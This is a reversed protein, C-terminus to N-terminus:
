IHILSLDLYTSWMANNSIGMEARFKRAVAPSQEDLVAGYGAAVTDLATAFSDVSFDKIGIGSLAEAEQAESM